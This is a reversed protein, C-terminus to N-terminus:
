VQFLVLDQNHLILLLLKYMSGVDSVKQKLFDCDSTAVFILSVFICSQVNNINVQHLTM